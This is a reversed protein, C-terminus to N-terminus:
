IITLLAEAQQGFKEAGICIDAALRIRRGIAKEPIRIQFSVKRVAKPPLMIRGVPDALKWQIPVVIRIIAEETTQFPNIVEVEFQITGGAKAALQYPHILACFGEAGLDVTDLPLMERHIRDFERREQLMQLYGDEVFVPDRHGTLIIDPQIHLYLGGSAEYDGIRYRNAYVYNAVNFLGSYQDGIAAIRKGDVTFSIAVAYLTHGGQEYFTFEYEEWKFSQNLPIKRAVPIPDFWLCPVNYHSPRELLDAFNEAAWIETGEVERLLNFGAIHDDHYHTPIAVEIKTVGFDRKLVQMNYLWPRWISRDTGSVYMGTKFDYGYDILLAKGSQSLLVYSNSISTRNFLLHPTIQTFPEKRLQLFGNTDVKRLELLQRFHEVLMDIAYAPKPMPDGHSPLLLEPERDRLDLLSLISALGGEAGNYSWQIASLTWVKGPSYILDGSFAAKQQDVEALLTISGITHGPTPIVMIGIGAFNMEDYDNLTGAIDVSELLSFRDQRVNYNNDIERAQWHENAQRFLNQEAQPVWIPIGQVNARALGQGQDRHYHTMLIAAVQDVGINSLQELVEGSGFDILVAQKGQRIVYVNCTDKYVYVHESIREM